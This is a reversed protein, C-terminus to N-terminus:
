LVRESITYVEFQIRKIRAKLVERAIERVDQDTFGPFLAQAISRSADLTDHVQFNNTTLDHTFSEVDEEWQRACNNAKKEDFDEFSAMYAEQSELYFKINQALVQWVKEKNIMGCEVQFFLHKVIRSLFISHREAIKLDKTALSKTIETQGLTERLGKPIQVRLYYTGSPRRWLYQRNIKMTKLGKKHSSFSVLTICFHSRQRLKRICMAM